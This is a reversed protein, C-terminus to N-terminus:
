PRCVMSFRRRRVGDHRGFSGSDRFSNGIAILIADDVYGIADEDENEPIELLDANYLIYIIM